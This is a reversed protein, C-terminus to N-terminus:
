WMRDPFGAPDQARAVQRKRKRVFPVILLAAAKRKAEEGRRDYRATTTVNAHGAMRQVTSIDAGCDLLHSIFSRRLDHPTFPAVGAQGVRMRLIYLIAQDTM